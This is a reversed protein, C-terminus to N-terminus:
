AEHTSLNVSTEGDDYVLSVIDGSSISVHSDATGDGDTDVGDGTDDVASIQSGSGFSGTATVSEREGNVVVYLNEMGITDGAQHTFTVDNSAFESSTQASPASNGLNDGLGLVFTGIVAALIVTIAVMLIVGIVPSVGRDRRDGLSKKM